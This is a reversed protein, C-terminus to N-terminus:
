NGRPNTTGPFPPMTFGGQQGPLVINPQKMVKDEVIQTVYLTGCDSCIDTAVHYSPLTTGMPLTAEIGKDICIGEIVQFCFNMDKRMHGRSKEQNGLSECYREKSSCVPCKDFLIVKPEEKSM